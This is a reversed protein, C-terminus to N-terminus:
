GLNVNKKLTHASLLYNYGLINTRYSHSPRLFRPHFVSPHTKNSIKHMFLVCSLINLQYVHLMKNLKFHVQGNLDIRIIHMTHKQESHLRRLKAFHSSSSAINAFNISTYVYSHYLALLKKNLHTKVKYLFGINKAFKKKIYKLHEKLTIKM